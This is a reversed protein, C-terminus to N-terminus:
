SELFWGVLLYTERRRVAIWSFEVLILVSDSLLFNSEEHVWKRVELRVADASQLPWGNKCVQCRIFQVRSLNRAVHWDQEWPGGEIRHVLEFINAFIEIEHQFILWNKIPKTISEMTSRGFASRHKNAKQFSNRLVFSFFLVSWVTFPIHRLIGFILGEM